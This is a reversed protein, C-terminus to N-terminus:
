TKILLLITFKFLNSLHYGQDWAPPESLNLFFLNDLLISFIFLFFIKTYDNKILNNKILNINM